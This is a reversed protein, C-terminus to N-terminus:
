NVCYLNVTCVFKVPKRFGGLLSSDGDISGRDTMNHHSYGLFFLFLFDASTSKILM